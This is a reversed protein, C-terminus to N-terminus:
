TSVMFIAKLSTSESRSCLNIIIGNYIWDQIYFDTDYEKTKRFIVIIYLLTKWSHESIQYLKYQIIKSVLLRKM